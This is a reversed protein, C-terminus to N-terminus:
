QVIAGKQTQFNTAWVILMIVLSIIMFYGALGVDGTLCHELFSTFPIVGDLFSGTLAGTSTGTVVAFARSRLFGLSAMINLVFISVLATFIFFIAAITMSM